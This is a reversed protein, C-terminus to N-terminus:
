DPSATIVKERHETYKAFSIRGEKKSQKESSQRRNKHLICSSTERWRNPDSGNGVMNKKEKKKEKETNRSVNSIAIDFERATRPSVHKFVHRVCM